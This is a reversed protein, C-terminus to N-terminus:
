SDAGFSECYIQYKRVNEELTKSEDYPCYEDWFYQADRFDAGSGGTRIDGHETSLLVTSVKLYGHVEELFAAIATPDFGRHHVSQFNDDFEVRNERLIVENGNEDLAFIWYRYDATGQWMSPQYRLLYDQGDIKLAFLNNWGAHSTAASDTWLLQDGEWVNLGWFSSGEITRNNGELIVTEAEGNHNFDYHYLRTEPIEETVSGHLTGNGVGVSCVYYRREGADGGDGVTLCMTNEDTWTGWNERPLFTYEPLVGGDPLTFQWTNWSDTEFFLIQNWTRGAYALALYKGDPSWLVSQWPYGMDEWLVEDTETNVIQLAEPLRVGSVYDESAGTTLVQYRGDPSVPEGEVEAVPTRELLQVYEDDEGPQTVVVTTSMDDVGFGTFFMGCLAVILIWNKM